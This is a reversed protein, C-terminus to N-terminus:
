IFYISLHFLHALIADHFSYAIHLLSLFCECGLLLTNCKFNIKLQLAIAKCHQTLKQWVVVHILWLYVYVRGRLGGEWEKVGDWGELNDCLM